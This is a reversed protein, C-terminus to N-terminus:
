FDIDWDIDGDGGRSKAGNGSPENGWTDTEAEGYGSRSASVSSQSAQLPMQAGLVYVEMLPSQYDKKNM